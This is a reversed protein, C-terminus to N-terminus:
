ATEKVSSIAKQVLEQIALKSVGAPLLKVLWRIGVQQWKLARSYIDNVIYEMNEICGTVGWKNMKEALTYCESCGAFGVGKLISILNTGPGTSAPALAQVKTNGGCCGVTKPRSTQQFVVATKNQTVVKNPQIEINRKSVQTQNRPPLNGEDCLKRVKSGVVFKTCDENM